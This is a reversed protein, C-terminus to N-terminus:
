SCCPSSASPRLTDDPRAHRTRACRAAPTQPSTDLTTRRSTTPTSGTSRTTKSRTRRAHRIPRQRAHAAAARHALVDHQLRRGEGLRRRRRHLRPGHRTRRGTGRHLAPGTEDGANMIVYRDDVATLLPLVDASDPTSDKWTSGARRRARCSTGRVNPHARAQQPTVSFGRYRLDASRLPLRRPTVRVDPRGVAWALRDWFIELNTTLRM